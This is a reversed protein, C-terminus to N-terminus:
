RLGGTERYHLAEAIHERGVTASGELDAVTRAVRLIRHYGRASLAMRDVARRLVRRGDADPICHRRVLRVDMQANCFVGPAGALRRCQAKRARIVRRRVTGSSEGEGAAELAEPEVSPLEVRLDIRDMLPGSIRNRYRGIATPDCTCRDTGDGHHGCPCPNMAAVLVLRAPYSLSSRARSLTVVGDEMPQRLVELVSRSFEPLEDLFLVGHHALSVEGPGPPNGGGVLGAASITHHPARFPRRAVLARDESLLGAVSHVTTVELAEEPQLPPLIGPLRRALMTKGGGPPGVLLLNHGGAAAVELARRGQLQGRMDALDPGAPAESGLAERLDVRVPSLLDTGDLHRLVAGLDSAGLVELGEVVAAELANENPVVLRAVGERRCAAAVSLAGRIPRLAGDLGLEGAFAMGALDDGEVGGSAALVGLAIPLDFASGEKRVDAPALNVTIRQLPLSMGVNQLAATVRERGERVAGRPLGVVSFSPLGSAVNVEVRVPYADVGRLSASTLQALM